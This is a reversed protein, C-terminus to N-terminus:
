PFMTSSCRTGSSCVILIYHFIGDPIQYNAGPQWKPFNGTSIFESPYVRQYVCVCVFGHFYRAEIPLDSNRHAMLVMTDKRYLINNVLPLIDVM